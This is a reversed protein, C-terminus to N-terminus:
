GKDIEVGLVNAKKKESDFERTANEKKEKEGVKEWVYEVEDNLVANLKSATIGSRKELGKWKKKDDPGEAYFLSMERLM